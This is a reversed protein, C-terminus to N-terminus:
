LPEHELHLVYDTTTIILSPILALQHSPIRCLVNPNYDASPTPHRPFLPFLLPPLPARPPLPEFVLVGGGLRVSFEPRRVSRDRLLYTPTSPVVYQPSPSVDTLEAM